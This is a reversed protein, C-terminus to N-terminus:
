FTVGGMGWRWYLSATWSVEPIFLLLIYNYLSKVKYKFVAESDAKQTSTNYEM